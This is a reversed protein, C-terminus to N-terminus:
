RVGDTPWRQAHRLQRPGDEADFGFFHTGPDIELVIDPWKQVVKPAWIPGINSRLLKKKADQPSLALFYFIDM